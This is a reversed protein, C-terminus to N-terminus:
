SFSGDPNDYALRGHFFDSLSIALVDSDEVSEIFDNENNLVTKVYELVMNYFPAADENM